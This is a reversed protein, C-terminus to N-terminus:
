MKKINVVKRVWQVSLGMVVAIETDPRTLVNPGVRASSPSSRDTAV